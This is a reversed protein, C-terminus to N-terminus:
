PHIASTHLFSHPSAWAATAPSPPDETVPRRITTQTSGPWFNSEPGGGRYSLLLLTERGLGWNGWGGRPSLLFQEAAQV